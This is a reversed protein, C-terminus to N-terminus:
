GRSSHEYGPRMMAIQMQKYNHDGWCYDFTNSVDGVEIRYIDLHNSLHQLIAQPHCQGFSETLLVQGIKAHGLSLQPDTPDMSNRELWNTFDDIEKNHWEYGDVYRITKGWEVDFEGSYYQLHTIAECVTDTLDPAHEDRFVEMLTKGIQTWHMYVGGFERDYGNAVFDKRHENTLRFRMAQLFTTIQSPRVWDPVTAQKRQSLILTESEHCLNNLQRIAYKTEYDAHKYYPSLNEVTGQLVEFYNHLRNMAGHKVGLGLNDSDYGVPYEDGFRVTDPTFYDEIIYPKLGARQWIGTRNFINIRYISDNIERCLYPLNRPSHPFGMFCYNKELLRNSQLEVQLASAWDQALQTDTLEIIYDLQDKKDLPNRLVVKVSKTGGSM